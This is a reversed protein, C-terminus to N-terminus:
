YEDEAINELLIQERRNKNNVVYVNSLSKFDTTLKVDLDYFNTSENKEFKSITGILINEPFIASYGSSVVTDGVSLDLHNPIESLTVSRYDEGDWQISGFFNNKKIKASFGLRNNLISIVLAYHNSTTVVIGVMGNPGIVGFDKEVGDKAGKDITIFNKDKTVTNKIVRAGLYEYRFSSSTDTVFMQNPRLSTKIAELQSKLKINENRLLENESTLSFYSTWNNVKSNLYGSISNASSFFANKKEVDS